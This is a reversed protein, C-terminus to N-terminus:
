MAEKLPDNKKERLHVPGPDDTLALGDSFFPYRRWGYKEQELAHVAAGPLRLLLYLMEGQSPSLGLDTFVAAAVGSFALPYNAIEELDSRHCKLWNIVGNRNYRALVSLTQTVPKISRTGHPNFGPPHELKGWINSDQEHEDPKTIRNKWSELDQGCSLWSEMCIAVEHAGGLQGAGVALAAILCSAYTSGGVGANMAARVSHDRLGPNALAVALGELLFVQEKSPREQKFLLFLYEIWSANGIIEGYVDYGCCYCEKAVFPNDVEAIEEWICTHIVEKQVSM